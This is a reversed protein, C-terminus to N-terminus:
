DARVPTASTASRQLQDSQSDRAENRLEQHRKLEQSLVFVELGLAFMYLGVSSLLARQGWVPDFKWIWIGHTAVILVFRAFLGGLVHKIMDTQTNSFMGARLTRYGIVALVLAMAVAWGFCAMTGPGWSPQLATAGIGALVLLMVAAKVTFALTGPM